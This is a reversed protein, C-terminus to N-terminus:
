WDIEGSVSRTVILRPAGGSVPVVAIRNDGRVIAVEAGSPSFAVGYAGAGGPLTRAASGDIQAVYADRAGFSQGVGVFAIQDGKPSVDVDIATQTPIPV